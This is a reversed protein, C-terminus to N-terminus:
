LEITSAAVFDLASEEGCSKTDFLQKFPGANVREAEDFNAVRLELGCLQECANALAEIRVAARMCEPDSASYAARQGHQHM